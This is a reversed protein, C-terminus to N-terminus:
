PQTKRRLTDIEAQLRHITRQQEDLVATMRNLVSILHRNVNTQHAVARNVYFLVLGHAGGRILQWLRGLVPLSTAPSPSLVADTSVEAYNENALRLYHHLDADYAIDQPPGSYSAAGFTPFSRQDYGLEARRRAIRVRIEEMIKDPDIQPDQIEIVSNVMKAQLPPDAQASPTLPNNM